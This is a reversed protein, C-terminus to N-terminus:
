IHGYRRFTHTLFLVLIRPSLYSYWCSFMLLYCSLLVSFDSRVRFPIARSKPYRRLRLSRSPSTHVRLSCGVSSFLLLFCFAIFTGPVTIGQEKSLLSVVTFV